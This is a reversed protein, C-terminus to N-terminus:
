AVPGIRAAAEIVQKGPHRHGYASAAVTLRLRRPGIFLRRTLARDRHTEIVHQLAVHRVELPRRVAVRDAVIIM